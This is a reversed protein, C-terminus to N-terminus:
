GTDQLNRFALGKKHHRNEKDGGNEAAGIEQEGGDVVAADLGALDAGVQMVLVVRGHQGAQLKGIASEHAPNGASKRKDLIFPM